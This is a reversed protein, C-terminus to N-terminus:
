DDCAELTLGDRTWQAICNPPVSIITIMQEDQARTEILDPDVLALESPLDFFVIRETDTPILDATEVNSWSEILGNEVSVLLKVM